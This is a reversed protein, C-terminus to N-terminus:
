GPFASWSKTSLPLWTSDLSLILLRFSLPASAKVPGDSVSTNFPLVNSRSEFEPTTGELSGDIKLIAVTM